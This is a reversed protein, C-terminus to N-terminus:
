LHFPANSEFLFTEFCPLTFQTAPEAHQEMRAGLVAHVRCTPTQANKLGKEPKLNKGSGCRTWARGLAM